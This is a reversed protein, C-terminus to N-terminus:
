GFTPMSASRQSVDTGIREFLMDGVREAAAGALVRGALKWEPGIQLISRVYATQYVSESKAMADMRAFFAARPSETFQLGYRELTTQVPMKTVQPGLKPLLEGLAPSPRVPPASYRRASM